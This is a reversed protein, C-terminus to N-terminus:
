LRCQCHNKEPSLKFTLSLGPNESHHILEALDLWVSELSVRRIAPIARDYYDLISLLGTTEQPSLLSM